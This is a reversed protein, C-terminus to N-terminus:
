GRGRRDVSAELQLRESRETVVHCDTGQIGFVVDYTYGAEAAVWAEVQCELGLQAGPSAYYFRLRILRDPLAGIQVGPGPTLALSGRSTTTCRGAPDACAPSADSVQVSLASVNPGLSPARIRILVLVQGPEPILPRYPTTCALMLAFLLVPTLRM